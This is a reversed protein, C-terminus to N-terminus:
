RVHVATRYMGMSCTLLFDKQPNLIPGLWNGGQQIPTEINFSPAVLFAACGSVSSAAYAYVWTERGARITFSSPSYGQDTVSLAIIQRGQTDISVAPDERAESAPVPFFKAIDINLLLLGSRLNMLGLVVVLVGSFRFLWRLFKGEALSSLLSIGLLAPLTGLTFVTMILAGGLFTGTQLALLQTSQTFGCPLFFTLAGLTLAMPSSGSQALRQLSATFRGSFLLRPLRPLLRLLHLGLLVMVVAIVAMLLGTARVSPHLVSGLMGVLGGFLFFGLIRGGNFLLLPLLRRGPTERDSAERWAFSLSLLLGGVLSLCSSSSAVLGLLFVTGLGAANGGSVAPTWGLASLIKGLILILALAGGLEVWYQMDRPEDSRCTTCHIDHVHPTM